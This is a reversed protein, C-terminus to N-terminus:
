GVINRLGTTHEYIYIYIYYSKKEVHFNPIDENSDNSNFMTLQLSLAILCFKSRGLIGNGLHSQVYIGASVHMKATSVVESYPLSKKVDKM